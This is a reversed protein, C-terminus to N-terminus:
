TFHSPDLVIAMVNMIIVLM